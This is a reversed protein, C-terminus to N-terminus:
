EGVTKYAHSCVSGQADFMVVLSEGKKDDGKVYTWMEVCAGVSIPAKGAPQGLGDEIDAKTDKGNKLSGDWERWTKPAGGCALLACASVGLLVTLKRSRM